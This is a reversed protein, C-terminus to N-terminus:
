LINKIFIYYILNTKLMNQSKNISMGLDLEWHLCTTSLKLPLYNFVENIQHSKYYLIAKKDVKITCILILCYITYKESKLLYLIDKLAM